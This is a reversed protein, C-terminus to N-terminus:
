ENNRIKKNFVRSLVHSLHSSKQRKTTSPPGDAQKQINKKMDWCSGTKTKENKLSMVQVQSSQCSDTWMSYANGTNWRLKSEKGRLADGADNNMM